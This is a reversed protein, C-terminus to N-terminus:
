LKLKKFIFEPVNRIICMIYRWMWKIYTINKKNKYVKYLLTGAEKPQLTLKPNLPMGATMKTNMFGPLVTAVHIGKDQLYNRLGSLYATLGAKASGYIFNSQRGREGAVSSLVIFQGKITQQLMNEVLVNLAVILKSYNIAIVEETNQTDFLGQETNKGLLGIACFVLNVDTCASFVDQPNDTLVNFPLAFLPIQGLGYKVKLHQTYRNLEAPNSSSFYIKNIPEGKLIMTEVFAQAIESNSGLILINLAM